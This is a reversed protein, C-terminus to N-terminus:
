DPKYPKLLHQSFEQIKEVGRVEEELLPLKTVHFDEYLDDIQDLYKRQLKQRAACLACPKEGKRSFNLQNVVINHTDIGYQNLEQVLRETEYLSLFEAICVCVFTTQDANKFQENVQRITSLMEEFKSSMQDSNLDQIGVMGALQSIFPSIQNKLRLLKGLGKEIISPFSLLRLTHGTPATDFIVVSFNMNRVLKMVEAFSMAEDIGPFSGLLEQAINRGVSMMDAQEFYEDPLESFGLNPDIEMAYLNTFGKVLTPVKSFKQSFADSINHAPDTSIILVTERVSALQVALSCSTTTKGVGGKGGVFVWKLSTQDIINKLSPEYEVAADAIRTHRWRALPSLKSIHTDVSLIVVSTHIPPSSDTPWSWPKAEQSTKSSPPM